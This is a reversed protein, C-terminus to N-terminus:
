VKLKEGAFNTTIYIYIIVYGIDTKAFMQQM